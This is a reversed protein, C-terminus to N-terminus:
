GNFSHFQIQSEEVSKISSQHHKYTRKKQHLTSPTISPLRLGLHFISGKMKETTPSKIKDEFDKREVESKLEFAKL